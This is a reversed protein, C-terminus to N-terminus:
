VNNRVLGVKGSSKLYNLIFPILVLQIIIGPLGTTITGWIYIFPNSPLRAFGFGHVIIWVVLGAGIRGMLMTIILSLYINVQLRKFFYGLVLGYVALEVTMIPLMPILPPMGTLVSNLLPTIIGVILGAGPGLLVGGLFVPLHMPLFISGLGTGLYHFAMPIVIGLAVLVAMYVVKRTKINIEERQILIILFILAKRKIPLGEHD